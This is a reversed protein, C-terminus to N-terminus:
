HNRRGKYCSSGDTYVQAGAVTHTDVFANPTAGDTQPVVNAAVCNTARDRVGVVATKGVPGRGKRIRKNKEKGGFHAEDM